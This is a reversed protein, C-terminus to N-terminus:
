ICICRLIHGNFTGKLLLQQVIPMKTETLAALMLRCGTACHVAFAFIFVGAIKWWVLHPFNASSHYALWFTGSGLDIVLM